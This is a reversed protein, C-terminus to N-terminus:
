MEQKYTACAIESECIRVTVLEINKAHLDSIFQRCLIRSFNEISPNLGTFEQLENLTRQKYRNILSHIIREVKVIDVLYGQHNLQSGHLEIEVTYHHAHKTNEAGYDGGILYHYAKFDHKVSLGYM